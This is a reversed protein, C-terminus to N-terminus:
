SQIGQSLASPVTPTLHIQAFAFERGHGRKMALEIWLLALPELLRAASLPGADVPEFGLDAALALVLPKRAEDDGAVMMMPTPEYRRRGDMNEAGTQNFAKFVTAIPVARAITEAGSDSHGTALELGGSGMHLPNTCDIVIADRTDGLGALAPVAQAYPVALVVIAAGRLETAAQVRTKTLDDHKADAPDLVGWRVDHGAALWGTGLARGVNGAGLILITQPVTM